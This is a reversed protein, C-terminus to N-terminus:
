GLMITIAFPWLIWKCGVVGLPPTNFSSGGRSTIVNNIREIKAVLCEYLNTSSERGKLNRTPIVVESKQLHQFHIFWTVNNLWTPWYSYKNTIRAYLNFKSFQTSDYARITCPCQQEDWSYKYSVNNMEINNWTNITLLRVRTSFVLM